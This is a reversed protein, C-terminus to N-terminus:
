IWWDNNLWQYMESVVKPELFDARFLVSLAGKSITSVCYLPLHVNLLYKCWYNICIPSWISTLKGSSFIIQLWNRGQWMGVTLFFFFFGCSNPSSYSCIVTLLLRHAAARSGLFPSIDPPVSVLLGYSEESWKSSLSHEWPCTARPLANNVQGARLWIGREALLQVTVHQIEWVSKRVLQM